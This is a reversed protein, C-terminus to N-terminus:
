KPNCPPLFQPEDPYSPVSSNPLLSYPTPLLSYPTPLLSYPIPFRSDPFFGTYRIARIM